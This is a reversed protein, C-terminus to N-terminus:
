CKTERGLPTLTYTVEFYPTKGPLCFKYDENRALCGNESLLKCTPKRRKIMVPLDEARFREVPYLEQIFKLIYLQHVTLKGPKGM